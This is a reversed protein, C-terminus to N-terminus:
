RDTQDSSTNLPQAITPDIIVTAADAQVPYSERVPGIFWVRVWQGIVFSRFEASASDARLIETAPTIRVVAKASGASETPREEVRITGTREGTQNIATVWGAISPQSTPFRPVPQACGIVQLSLALILYTRSRM